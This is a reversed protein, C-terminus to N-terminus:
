GVATIERDRGLALVAIVKHNEVHLAAPFITADLDAQVSQLRRLPRGVPRLEDEGAEAIAEGIEENDTPVAGAQAPEGVVLKGVEVGGPRGVALRDREHCVPAAFRIEIQEAEPIQADRQQVEVGARDIHEPVHVDPLVDIGHPGRVAPREGEDRIAGANRINEQVVHGVSLDILERVHERPDLPDRRQRGHERPRRLGVTHGEDIVLVALVTHIRQLIRPRQAARGIVAGGRLRDHTQHLRFRTIGDQLRGGGGAM